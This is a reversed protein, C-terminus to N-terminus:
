KAQGTKGQIMDIPNRAKGAMVQTNFQNLLIVLCLTVIVCGFIYLPMNNRNKKSDEEMRTFMQHMSIQQVLFEEKTLIHKKNDYVFTREEEPVDPLVGNDNWIPVPKMDLETYLQTTGWKTWAPWTVRNSADILYKEGAIENEAYAKFTDLERRVARIDQTWIISPWPRAPAEWFKLDQITRRLNFAM